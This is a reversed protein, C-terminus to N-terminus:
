PQIYQISKLSHEESKTTNKKKKLCFVAYSIFSHSQLESTHEESRPTIFTFSTQYASNYGDYFKALENSTNWSGFADARVICTNCSNSKWKVDVTVTEGPSPNSPSLNVYEVEMSYNPYSQGINLNYNTNTCDSQPPPNIDPSTPNNEDTCLAGWFLMSTLIVFFLTKYLKM